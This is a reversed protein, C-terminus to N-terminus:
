PPGNRKAVFRHDTPLPEGPHKQNRRPQIHRRPPSVHKKAATRLTALARAHLRSAWSCDFGMEEAAASLTKGQGYRLDLLHRQREPLRHLETAVLSQRTDDPEVPPLVMPRGNWRTDNSARAADALEVLWDDGVREIRLRADAGRGFWHHLRIGDVIAGHIRRGAFGAFPVGKSADFRSAAELLGIVGYAVLDELDVGKGMPGSRIAGAISRVLPLHALVRKDPADHAATDTKTATSRM